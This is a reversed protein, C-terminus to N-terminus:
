YGANKGVMREAKLKAEKRSVMERRALTKQMERNKECGYESIYTGCEKCKGM